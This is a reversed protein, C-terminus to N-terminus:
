SAEKDSLYTIYASYTPGYPSKPHFPKDKNVVIKTITGYQGFFEDKVL